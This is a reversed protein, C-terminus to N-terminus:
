ETKTSLHLRWDSPTTSRRSQTIRGSTRPWLTWGRSPSICGRRRSAVIFAPPWTSLSPVQERATTVHHVSVATSLLVVLLVIFFVTLLLLWVVIGVIISSQLLGDNCDDCTKVPASLRGAYWNVFLWVMHDCHGPIKQKGPGLGCPELWGLSFCFLSPWRLPVARREIDTSTNDGAACKYSLYFSAVLTRGQLDGSTIHFPTRRYTMM